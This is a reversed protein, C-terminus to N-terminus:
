EERVEELDAAEVRARDGQLRLRYVQPFDYPTHHAAGLREGLVLAGVHPDDPVLLGHDGLRVGPAHLADQAIEDDVSHLM